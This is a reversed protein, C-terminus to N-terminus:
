SCEPLSFQLVVVDAIVSFDPIRGITIQQLYKTKLDVISLTLRDGRVSALM